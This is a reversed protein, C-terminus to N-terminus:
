AVRAHRKRRLWKPLRIYSVVLAIGLLLLAIWWVPELAYSALGLLSAMASFAATTGSAQVHSFGLQNLQQYVHEKHPESLKAGRRARALLTWGVDGFYIIMPGITALVPVDTALAAFSTM